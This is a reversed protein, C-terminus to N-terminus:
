RRYSERANKDDWAAGFVYTAIIGTAGYILQTAINARSVATNADGPWVIIDAIGVACFILSLHIVRRRKKWESPPPTFTPRSPAEAEDAM